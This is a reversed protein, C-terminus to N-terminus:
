PPSGEDLYGTLTVLAAGDQGAAITVRSLDPDGTAARTMTLTWDQGAMDQVPAPDLGLRLETLAAEAVWRAAIRDTLATIRATQQEAAFLLATAGVALVAMAVLAEILTFGGDAGAGARAGSAACTM